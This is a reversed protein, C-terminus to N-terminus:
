ESDTDSEVVEDDKPTVSFSYEKDNGTSVTFNVVEKIDQWKTAGSAELWATFITDTDISAFLGAVGLKDGTKSKGDPRTVTVSEIRARPTTTSGAGAVKTTGRLTPMEFKELEEEVGAVDLVRAYNKLTALTTRAIVSQEAFATKLKALEAPDMFNYGKLIHQHADERIVRVADELRKMEVRYSALETDASEALEKDLEAVSPPSSEKVKNYLEFLPEVSTQVKAWLKVIASDEHKSLDAGM